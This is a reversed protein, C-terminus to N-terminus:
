VRPAEGEDSARRSKLADRLVRAAECSGGEEALGLATEMEQRLRENEARLRTGEAREEGMVREAAILTDRETAGGEQWAAMVAAADSQDPLMEGKVPDPSTM